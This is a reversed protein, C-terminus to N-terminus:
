SSNKELITHDSGPLDPWADLVLILVLSPGIFLALLALVEAILVVGAEARDQEGIESFGDLSGDIEIRM